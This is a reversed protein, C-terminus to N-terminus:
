DKGNLLYNLHNFQWFKETFNKFFKFIVDKWSKKILYEEFNKAKSREATLLKM